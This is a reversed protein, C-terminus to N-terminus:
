FGFRSRSAAGTTFTWEVDLAGASHTGIIKVRYTTNAEFPAGYMVATNGFYTRLGLSVVPASKDLWVHDLPTDDGEKTLIHESVSIRDAYISIPYSSPWGGAPEPPQPAELGNFTLPVDTQGDYPYVVITGDPPPSTGHGFDIVDCGQAGGWGMDTTWPDIMPIRHFPTVLWGPIALDPNDGYTLAVETYALQRPYGAAVERSQVDAGTFGPCGRVEDHASRGCSPNGRNAARYDCHKQAATMLEPVINICTSGAALRMENMLTWARITSETSGEPPPTCSSIDTTGQALTSTGAGDGPGDTSMSGSPEDPLPPMPPMFGGGPPGGSFPPAMGGATGMSGTAGPPMGQVPPASGMMNPAAPAAALDSGAMNLPTNGTAAPGVPGFPQQAPVMEGAAAPGSDAPEDESCASLSIWACAAMAAMALRAARM